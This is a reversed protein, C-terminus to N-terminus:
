EATTLPCSLRPEEGARLVVPAGRHAFQLCEGELLRYLAEGQLLEVELLAERIRLRFRLRSWHLPLKPDFCINGDYDRLGAFGNIVAMWTGGCAALHMGDRVNGNRDALDVLASDM